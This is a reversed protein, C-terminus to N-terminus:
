EPFTLITVSNEPLFLGDAEIDPWAPKAETFGERAIQMCEVRSPKWGGFGLRVPQVNPSRNILVLTREGAKKVAYAVVRKDNSTTSAVVDGVCHANFLRYLNASPRLANSADMKGYTGDKENWACSADIGNRPVGALILADFVAGKNDRMRVDNTQWTWSINYENFHVGVRRDPIEQDLIKRIERGFSDALAAKDYIVKDADGASGSVYAHYSFFDLNAKTGRIFERFKAFEDGKAVAPGGTQITPDVKKMAEACKNYITVLAPLNDPENHKKPDVWYTGDQENTIEWYKVGRKQDVNILKVLDACFNAFNDYESPDLAAKGQRKFWAPWGPINILIDGKYSSAWGDMTRRIKEADWRKEALQVWGDPKQASDDLMRWSHFRLLGPNMFSINEQYKPDNSDKPDFGRFANLSYSNRDAKCMVKSWDVDAHVATAAVRAAPPALIGSVSIDDIFFMGKTMNSAIATHFSLRDPAGGKAFGAKGAPVGDLEVSYTGNSGGSTDTQDFSIKVAHVKGLEYKVKAGGFEIVGGKLLLSIISGGGTRPNNNEVGVDSMEVFLGNGKAGVDFFKFTMEGKVCADGLRVGFGMAWNAEDDLLLCNSDFGGPFVCAMGSVVDARTIGGGPGAGVVMGQKEKLGLGGNANTPSPKAAKKNDGSETYDPVGNKNEDVLAIANDANFDDTFIVRNEANTVIVSAVSSQGSGSAARVYYAGPTAPAKYLGSGDVSGAATSKQFKADYVSWKVPGGDGRFQFQQTGGAKLMVAAPSIASPEDKDEQVVPGKVVSLEADAEGQKRENAPPAPKENVTANGPFSEAMIIDAMTAGMLLTGIMAPVFWNKTTIM